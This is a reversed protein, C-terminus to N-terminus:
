ELKVGEELLSPGKSAGTNSILTFNSNKFQHYFSPNPSPFNKKLLDNKRM